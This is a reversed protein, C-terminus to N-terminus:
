PYLSDHGSGGYTKRWIKDGDSDLKLVWVDNGGAGFSETQGGVVFGGDSTQQVSCIYELGSGGYTKAWYDAGHSVSVTISVVSFVLFIMCLQKM